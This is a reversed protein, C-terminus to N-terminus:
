EEEGERCGQSCGRPIKGLLLSCWHRCDQCWVPCHSPAAMSRQCKSWSSSYGNTSSLCKWRKCSTRESDPVMIISTLDYLRDRIEHRHIVLGGLRCDLAQSTRFIEGCDDCHPPLQLLPKMYRLFLADHFEVASLHFSDKLLPTATLWASLSVKNRSLFQKSISDSNEIESFIQNYATLQTRTFESRISSVLENHDALSFM